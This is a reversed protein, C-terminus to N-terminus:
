FIRITYLQIPSNLGGIFIRSFVAYGCTEVIGINKQSQYDRLHVRTAPPIENEPMARDKVPQACTRKKNVQWDRM